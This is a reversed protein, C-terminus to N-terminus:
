ATDDKYGFNCVYLNTDGSVRLWFHDDGSSGYSFDRLLNLSNTDINNALYISKQEINENTLVPSDCRTFFALGLFTLITFLLNRLAQLLQNNKLTCPIMKTGSMGDGAVFTLIFAPSSNQLL